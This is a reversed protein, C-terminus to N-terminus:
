EDPEAKTENEEQMIEDDQGFMKRIAKKQKASTLYRWGFWLGVIMPVIEGALIRGLAEGDIM